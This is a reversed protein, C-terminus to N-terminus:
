GHQKSKAGFFLGIACFIAAPFLVYELHTNSGLPFTSIASLILTLAVAFSSLAIFKLQKRNMSYGNDARPYFLRKMARQGEMVEIKEDNTLGEARSLFLTIRRLLADVGAIENPNLLERLGKQKMFM